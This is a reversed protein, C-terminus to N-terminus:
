GLRPLAIFPATELLPTMQAIIQAACGRKSIINHAARLNHILQHNNCTYLNKM